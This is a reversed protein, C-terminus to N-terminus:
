VKATEKFNKINKKYLYILTAIILISFISTLIIYSVIRLINKIDGDPFEIKLGLLEIFSTIGLIITALAMLETFFSQRESIQTQKNLIEAQLESVEIQQKQIHLIEKERENKEFEKWSKDWDEYFSM